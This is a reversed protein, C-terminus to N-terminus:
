NRSVIYNSQQEVAGGGVFIAKPMSYSMPQLIMVGILQKEYGM